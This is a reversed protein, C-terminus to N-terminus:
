AHNFLRACWAQTTSLHHRHGQDSPVTCALSYTLECLSLDNYARGRQVAEREYLAPTSWHVDRLRWHTELMVEIGSRM